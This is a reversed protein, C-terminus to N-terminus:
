LLGKNEMGAIAEKIDKLIIDLAVPKVDMKKLCNNLLGANHPPNAGYGLDNAQCIYDAAYLTCSMRSFNDARPNSHAGITRYFEEPLAWSECIASGVNAHNYGLIETEAQALDIKRTNSITLAAEFDNLLFQDESIIGIDHLLGVVYANEGRHGFEKRYILKSFLAVAVSHRWLAKRSYCGIKEDKNFIECVKQNIALEKILESGLRIIAQEIDTFTRTYSRSYYASNATKLIKAALPPDLMIVEMLDKVTSRPDNIARIIAAVSTKISSIESLNVMEVLQLIEDNLEGVHPRM